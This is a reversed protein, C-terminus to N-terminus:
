PTEVRAPKPRAWASLLKAAGVLPRCIVHYLPKLLWRLLAVVVAVYILVALVFLPWYLWALAPNQAILRQLEDYMGGVVSGPAAMLISGAAHGMSQVANQLLPGVQKPFAAALVIAGVGAGVLSRLPYKAVLRLGASAANGIGQVIKVGATALINRTAIIAGTEGTAKIAQAGALEGGGEVVLEVTGETVAQATGELTAKVAADTATTAVRVTTGVLAVAAGADVVAWAVDGWKLSRGHVKENVVYAISGGPLYTWLPKARPHGSADVYKKIDAPNSAIEALAGTGGVSLAPILIAGHKELQEKFAADNQFHNLFQAAAGRKKPDPDDSNDFRMLADTAAVLLKDSSGYKTLVAPLETGGYHKLIALSDKQNESGDHAILWFVAPDQCAVALLSRNADPTENRQLRSVSAAWNPRGRKFEAVQGANIAAFEIAPKLPVDANQLDQIIDLNVMYTVAYIPGMKPDRDIEVVRPRARDFLDLMRNWDEVATNALLPTLTKEFDRYTGRHKPDLKSIAFAYAGNGAALRCEEPSLRHTETLFKSAETSDMDALMGWIPLTSDVFGEADDKNLQGDLAMALAQRQVRMMESPRALSGVALQDWPAMNQRQCNAVTLMAGLPDYAVAADITQNEAQSTQGLRAQLYQRAMSQRPDLWSGLRAIAGTLLVGGIVVAATWLALRVLLKTM